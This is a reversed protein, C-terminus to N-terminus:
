FRHAAPLMLCARLLGALRVRRPVRAEARAQAELVRRASDDVGEPFLRELLWALEAMAGRAQVRHELLPRMRFPARGDGIRGAFNARHLWTASSIWQAEEDWGSVDPPDLLTQGMRGAARALATPAATCDLTRLLWVIWEVPGRIRTRRGERAYFLNSALLIELVRGINGGERRVIAAFAALAPRPYQPGVFARLLKDGVFRACDPRAVALEIVREGARRGIGGPLTAGLVAKVGDDHRRADFFFQEGVMRWGTFARAAEQIDHETYHDRGLTFLEFLERAFNENPSGKRNEENDLWRLMAPTKAVAVVLKGFDDLGHRRFLELQQAMWYSSRVKSIGTAFHDHWFLEMRGGFPNCTMLLRAWWFAALDKADEFGVVTDRMSLLSRERADPSAGRVVVRAAEVPGAALCREIWAPPHGLTARRLLHVVAARDFANGPGPEFPAFWDNPRM